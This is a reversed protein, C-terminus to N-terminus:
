RAKDGKQLSFVKGPAGNLLVSSTRTYFILDMWALCKERFGMKKMIRIMAGHEIRLRKL